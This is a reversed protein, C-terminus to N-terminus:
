NTLTNNKEVQISYRCNVTSVNWIYQFFKEKLSFLFPAGVRIPNRNHLRRGRSKLGMSWNGLVGILQEKTPQTSKTQKSNKTSSSTEAEVSKREM